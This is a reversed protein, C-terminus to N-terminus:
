ATKRRPALRAAGKAKTVRKPKNPKVAERANKQAIITTGNRYDTLLILQRLWHRRVQALQEDTAIMGFVRAAIFRDSFGYRGLNECRWRQIDNLAKLM